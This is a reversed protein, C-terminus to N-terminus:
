HWEGCCDICSSKDNPCSLDEFVDLCNDCSYLYRPPGGALGPEDLDTCIAIVGDRRQVLAGERYLRRIVRRLSVSDGWAADVRVTGHRTAGNNPEAHITSLPDEWGFESLRLGDFVLRVAEVSSAAADVGLHLAICAGATAVVRRESDDFHRADVDLELRDAVVAEDWGPDVLFGRVSAAVDGGLAGLQATQAAFGRLDTLPIEETERGPRDVYAVYVRMLHATPSAAPVAPGKPSHAIQSSADLRERTHM